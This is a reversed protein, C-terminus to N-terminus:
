KIGRVVMTLSVRTDWQPEGYEYQKLRRDYREHALRLMETIETDTVVGPVTVATSRIADLATERVARLMDRALAPPVAPDDPTLDIAAYGTSIRHFGYRGMAAPLEAETMSYRGVAYTEMTTDHANVKDWFAKEFASETIDPPEVTIGRRVSVVLCIGGPVLIRHQETYFAQPDIHEAVTNSITVDFTNDAFPLATADGVLFNVGPEHLRAYEIFNEDRDLATIEAQPYWRHLASALAGPGCGIELIRLPKERDLAFLPEYLAYFRDDFRLRRSCYLTNIGQIRTSWATHM